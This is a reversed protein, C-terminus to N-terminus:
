RGQLRIRKRRHMIFYLVTGLPPLLLVLLLWVIKDSGESPENQAIDVIAWIWAGFLAVMIASMVIIVVLELVHM